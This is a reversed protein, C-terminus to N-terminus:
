AITVTRKSTPSSWSRLTVFTCAFSAPAIKVMVSPGSPPTHAAEFLSDASGRSPFSPSTPPVGAPPAPVPLVIFESVKAPDYFQKALETLEAAKREDGRLSSKKLWLDRLKKADEPPEVGRQGNSGLWELWGNAFTLRANCIDEYETIVPVGSAMRLASELSIGLRMVCYRVADAM